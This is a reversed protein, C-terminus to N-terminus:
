ARTKKPAGVFRCTVQHKGFNVLMGWDLGLHRLYTQLVSRDAATPQDKLAVVLAAAKNEIVVCDCQTAGLTRNQARITAQPRTLCRAGEGELDAALLGRYTTDRYGLGYEAHIRGVSELIVKALEGDTVFEPVEELLRSLDLPKTPSLANLIRRQILSEKGFDFLLAVPIRWFKLYCICQTTNDPPFKSKLVKAEIVLRNEVLVDCEFQDAVRGRHILTGRPKFKHEIGILRLRESLLEHYFIEDIGPGLENHVWMAQGIVHYTLKEEKMSASSVTCQRIDAVCIKIVALMSQWWKAPLKNGPKGLVPAGLLLVVSSSKEPEGMRQRASDTPLERRRVGFALVGLPNLVVVSSPKGPNGWGNDPQIPQSNEGAYGLPWSV